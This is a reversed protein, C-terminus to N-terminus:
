IRESSRGRARDALALGHGARQIELQETVRAVLEKTRDAEERAAQATVEAAAASRDSAVASRRAIVAAIVAVIFAALGSLVAVWDLPDRAVHVETLAPVGSIEASRFADLRRVREM